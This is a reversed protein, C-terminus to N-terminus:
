LGKDKLRPRGRLLCKKVRLRLHASIRHVGWEDVM